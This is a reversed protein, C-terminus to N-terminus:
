IVTWACVQPPFHLQLRMEIAESRLREELSDIDIEEDNIIGQQVIVPLLARLTEAVWAYLLSDPGGGVPVEAFLKPSPLGAIHFHEVMRGAAENGLFSAACALRAWEFAQNWLPSAPQSYGAQSTNMEHFAMIGGSGVHRRAIRLFESPSPQHALVLRGLIADFPETSSFDELSSVNFVIRQFGRNHANTKAHAIADASRDIGVVLGSPGIIEAALMSVDGSGCGIDLVRAGRQIGTQLLLRKTTSQIIQSQLSLRSLERPSSGLDYRTQPM